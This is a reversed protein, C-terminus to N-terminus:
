SNVAGCEIFSAEFSGHVYGVKLFDVSNFSVHIPEQLRTASFEESRNLKTNFGSLNGITSAPRLEGNTM